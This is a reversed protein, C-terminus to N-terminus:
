QIIYVCVSQTYTYAYYFIVPSLCAAITWWPSLATTVLNAFPSKVLEWAVPRITKILILAKQFNVIVLFKRFPFHQVPSVHCSECEQLLKNKWCINIEFRQCRKGKVKVKCSITTHAAAVRSTKKQLFAVRGLVKWELKKDRKAHVAHHNGKMVHSLMVPLQINDGLQISGM